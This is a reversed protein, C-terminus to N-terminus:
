SHEGAEVLVRDYLDRGVWFGARTILDDLIPKVAVIFGKRKAEVLVGL